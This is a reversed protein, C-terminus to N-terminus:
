AAAGTVGLRARVRAMKDVGVKCPHAAGRALIADVRPPDARLQEGRARIRGLDAKVGELLMKKCDICGIGAMTSGAHVEKHRDGSPQIGSFVAEM